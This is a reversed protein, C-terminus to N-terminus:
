SLYEPLKIKQKGKGAEKSVIVAFKFVYTNKM